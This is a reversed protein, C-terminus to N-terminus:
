EDLYWCLKSLGSLFDWMCLGVTLSRGDFSMESSFAPIEKNKAEKGIVDCWCFSRPNHGTQAPQVAYAWTAWDGLVSIVSTAKNTFVIDENLSM